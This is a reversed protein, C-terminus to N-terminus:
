KLPLSDLSTDSPRSGTSIGSDSTNTSLHPADGNRQPPPESEVIPIITPQTISDGSIQSVTDMKSHPTATGLPTITAEHLDIDDFECSHTPEYRFAM